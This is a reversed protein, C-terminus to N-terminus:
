LTTIQCGDSEVILTHEKQSVLAGTREKLAAYSYIAMAEGLQQLAVNVRHENFDQTLWRGSFPLANYNKEIHKLMRQTSKLRFPRDRLFSFIYAEPCDNVIGDGPTAFPEIAVAQGEELITPDNNNYNPVSIEAHLNWHELSHGTLNLIPNMGYSSIAENVAEGIDCVKVGARVTSIAAELGAASADIINQRLELEEETYLEEINDGPVMITVASDAIYGEVEVGIDLKVLDGTVLKNTDHAPSTYHAAIENVSVNCPFAIGAGTKLIEGEVFEVLDLIPLGNKIMANADSRVKKLIKGAKEYCEIEDTM